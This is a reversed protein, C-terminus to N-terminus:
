LDNGNHSISFGTAKILEIMREAKKKGVLDTSIYKIREALLCCEDVPLSNIVNGLVVNNKCQEEYDSVIEQAEQYEEETIM